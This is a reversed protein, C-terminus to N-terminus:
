LWVVHVCTPSEKGRTGDTDHIGNDGHEAPKM